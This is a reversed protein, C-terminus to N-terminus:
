RRLVLWAGVAALVLLTVIVVPRIGRKMPVSLSPAEKHKAEVARSPRKIGTKPSSKAPSEAKASPRESDARERADRRMKRAREEAEARRLREAAEERAEAARQAKREAKRQKQVQAEHLRAQRAQDRQHKKVPAAPRPLLVPNAAQPLANSKPRRQRHPRRKGTV